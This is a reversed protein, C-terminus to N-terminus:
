LPARRHHEQALFYLQGVLSDLVDKVQSISYVRAPMSHKIHDDAIAPARMGQYIFVQLDLRKFARILDADINVTKLQTRGDSPHTRAGEADKDTYQLLQLSSELHVGANIYNNQIVEIAIHIVACILVVNLSLDKTGSMYRRLGSLAKAYQRSPFNTEILQGNGESSSQVSLSSREYLAGLAVVAQNVAPETACAQLALKWTSSSFFGAIDSVVETLFFDFSRLEQADEKGTPSISRLSLLASSAVVASSPSPTASAKGYGDCLRGTSTCRRCHPQSEDCKVHRTRLRTM